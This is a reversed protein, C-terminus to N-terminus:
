EDDDGSQGNTGSTLAHETGFGSTLSALLRSLSARDEDSMQVEPAALEGPPYLSGPHESERGGVNVKQVEWASISHAHPLFRESGDQSTQGTGNDYLALIRHRHGDRLDEPTETPGGEVIQAGDGPGGDGGAAPGAGAPPPAFPSGGGPPPAGGGGGGGPSPDNEVPPNIRTMGAAASRIAVLDQMVTAHEAAMQERSLAAGVLDAVKGMRLEVAEAIAVAQGSRLDIVERELKMMRAVLEAAEKEGTVEETGAELHAPLTVLSAELLLVKTFFLQDTEASWKPEELVRFGVSWGWIFGREAQGGREAAFADAMDFEAKESWLGEGDNSLDSHRGIMRDRDHNFFMPLPRAIKKWFAISPTWIDGQLIWGDVDPSALSLFGSAYLKGEDGKDMRLAPAGYATRRVIQGASIRQGRWIM